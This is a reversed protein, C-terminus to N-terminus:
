IALALSIVSIKISPNISIIEKAISEITSGTTIVDDVIAIHKWNKANIDKSIEYTNQANEWRLFKNLKTQSQSNKKRVVSTNNTEINLIESIGKCLLESQNYGRDFKKRQHLPVPILADIQLSIESKRLTEGIKRGLEIAFDKRNQYKIAHLIKQTSNAKEFYLLSYGIELPVRGWFIKKTKQEFTTNEMKTFALEQECLHCIFTQKNPTENECIICEDPFFLHEFYTIFKTYVQNLQLLLQNFL